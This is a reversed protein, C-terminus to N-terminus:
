RAVGHSQAVSKQALVLYTEGAQRILPVQRDAMGQLIHHVGVGIKEPLLNVGMLTM